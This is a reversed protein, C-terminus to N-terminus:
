NFSSIDGKFKYAIESRIRDLANVSTVSGAARIQESSAFVQLNQQTCFYVTIENARFTSSKFWATSFTIKDARWDRSINCDITILNIKKIAHM